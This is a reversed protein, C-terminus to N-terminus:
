GLIQSRGVPRLDFADRAQGPGVEFAGRVGVQLGLARDQDEPHPQGLVVPSRLVDPEERVQSKQAAVDPAGAGPLRVTPM